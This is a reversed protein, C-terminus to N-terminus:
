HRLARVSRQERGHRVEDLTATIDVGRVPERRDLTALWEATSPRGADRELVRLVYASLSVHEAEAM